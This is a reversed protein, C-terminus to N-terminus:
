RFFYLLVALEITAAVVGFIVAARIDRRTQRQDEKPPGDPRDMELALRKLPRRRAIRPPAKPAIGGAVSM